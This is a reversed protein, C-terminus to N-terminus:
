LRCEYQGSLFKYMENKTVIGLLQEEEVVCYGPAATDKKFIADVQEVKLNANVTPLKKCIKYIYLEYITSGIFRNKNKNAQLIIEQVQESINQIKSSPKQIFYGQGYHVGM